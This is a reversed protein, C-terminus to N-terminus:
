KSAVQKPYFLHDGIAINYEYEKAWYPTISQEHYQLAGNTPDRRWQEFRLFRKAFDASDDWASQERIPYRNCAWSFACRGNVTYSVVECVTSAGQWQQRLRNVVVHAVAVRGEIPEGRAEYYDNLALCYVEEETVRLERASLGKIGVVALMLSLVVLLRKM